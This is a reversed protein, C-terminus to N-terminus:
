EWDYKPRKEEQKLNISNEAIQKLQEQRANQNMLLSEELSVEYQLVQQHEEPTQSMDESLIDTFQYTNGKLLKLYGKKMLQEIGRRCSSIDLGTLDAMARPSIEFPRTNKNDKNKIFDYTHPIRSAFYVYADMGNLTEIRKRALFYYETYMTFYNGTPTNMNIRTRNLYALKQNPASM